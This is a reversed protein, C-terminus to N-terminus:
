TAVAMFSIAAVTCSTARLASSAESAATAASWCARSPSLTTPSAMAWISRRAASTPWEVSAMPSSLRSLSLIPLTSSTILDTAWCVLRSASLAAISAARAPSAPRPKATTASSTRLRAWRVCFDVSSISSSITPRCFPVWCTAVMM